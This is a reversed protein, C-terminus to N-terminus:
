ARWLILVAELHTLKRDSTFNNGIRVILYRAKANLFVPSFAAQADVAVVAASRQAVLPQADRSVRGDRLSQVCMLLRFLGHSHCADRQGAVMVRAMAQAHPESVGHHRLVDLALTHLEALSLTVTEADKPFTTDSM